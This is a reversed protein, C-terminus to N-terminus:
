RLVNHFENSLSKGGLLARSLYQNLTSLRFSLTLGEFPWACNSRVRLLQIRATICHPTESPWLFAATWPSGRQAIRQNFRLDLFVGRFELFVAARHDLAQCFDFVLFLLDPQAAARFCDVRLVLFDPQGRALPNRLENIWARM